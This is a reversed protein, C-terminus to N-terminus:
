GDQRGEESHEAMSQNTEITRVWQKPVVRQLGNTVVRDDASFLGRVYVREADQYLVEVIRRQLRHTAAIGPPVPETVPAAIYVTWLGRPGEALASIPLWAGYETVFESLNLRVLDGPRLELDADVPDFLADVTRGTAARIPLLSRLRAQFTRDRYQMRYTHGVSLEDVLRGAVGVRMERPASEQMELVVAGADAVRGEDARRAVVVGDYPARLRTKELEIRVSDIQRQILAVRAKATQFAERAEDLGQRSVGGREVIEDQRRWTARTLKLSARAESLGAQLEQHRAQLRATDLHALVQDQQVLDGERVEILAIRGALEFGLASHRSAEVRGTFQRRYAYGREQKPKATTVTLPESTIPVAAPDSASQWEALGWVASGTFAAVLGFVIFYPNQM